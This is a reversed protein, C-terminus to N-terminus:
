CTIQQNNNINNFETIAATVTSKTVSYTSFQTVAGSLLSDISTCGPLGFLLSPNTVTQNKNLTPRGASTYTPYSATDLVTTLWQGLEMATGSGAANAASFVKLDFAPLYSINNKTPSACNAPVYYGGVATHSVNIL